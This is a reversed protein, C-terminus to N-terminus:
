YFLLPVANKRRRELKKPFILFAPWCVIQQGAMFLPCRKLPLSPASRLHLVSMLWVGRLFAVNFIGYKELFHLLIIQFKRFIKELSYLNAHFTKKALPSHLQSNNLFIEFTFQQM